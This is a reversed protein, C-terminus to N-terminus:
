AMSAVGDRSRTQAGAHLNVLTERLLERTVQSVPQNWAPAFAARRRVARRPEPAGRRRGPGGPPRGCRHAPLGAGPHGRPGRRRNGEEERRTSWPAVAARREDSTSATAVVRAARERCAALSAAPTGAPPGARGRPSGARGRAGRLLDDATVVVADPDDAAVARQLAYSTANRVAAELESGSFNQTKEDAVRGLVDALREGDLALAPGLKAAHLALIERRGSADPLAVECHVELRGPRLAAPDILDMGACGVIAGHNICPGMLKRAPLERNTTGIVLLNSQDDLGDLKALIQNVVGDRAAGGFSGDGTAGGGRKRLISDCEDLVVVHLSSQSGMRAWEDDAPKFLGRVAQESAGLLHSFVEPGRVLIPKRDSLLKAIGRAILTKGTGPPGHRRAIAFKRQEVVFAGYIQKAGRM